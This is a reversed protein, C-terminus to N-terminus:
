HYGALDTQIETSNSRKSKPPCNVETSFVGAFQTRLGALSLVEVTNTTHMPVMDETYLTVCWINNISYLTCYYLCFDSFFKKLFKGEPPVRYGTSNCSACSGKLQLCGKSQTAIHYFHFQFQYYQMVVVYM